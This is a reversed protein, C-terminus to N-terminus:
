IIFLNIFDSFARTLENEEGSVRPIIILEKDTKFNEDLMSSPNNLSYKLIEKNNLM